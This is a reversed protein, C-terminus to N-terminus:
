IVIKNVAFPWFRPKCKALTHFSRSGCNIQTSFGNQKIFQSEVYVNLKCASNLGFNEKRWELKVKQLCFYLKKTSQLKKIQEIFINTNNLSYQINFQDWFFTTSISICQSQVKNSYDFDFGIAYVYDKHSIWFRFFNTPLILKQWYSSFPNWCASDTNRESQFFVQHTFALLVKRISWFETDNWQTEILSSKVEEYSLFVMFLELESVKLTM